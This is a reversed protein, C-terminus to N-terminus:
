HLPFVGDKWTPSATDYDAHCEMAWRLRELYVPAQPHCVFFGVFCLVNKSHVTPHYVLGWLYNLYRTVRSYALNSEGVAYNSEVLHSELVWLSTTTITHISVAALFIIRVTRRYSRRMYWPNRSIVILLREYLFTTWQATTVETCLDLLLHM